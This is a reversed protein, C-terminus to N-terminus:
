PADKPVPLSGAGYDVRVPPEPTTEASWSVTLPTAQGPELRVKRGTRRLESDPLQPERTPPHLGHLFYDIFVVSAKVPAGDRAVLRLDGPTLDVRRLSDNRVEGQLVRADAPAEATFVRPTEVWTLDGSAQDEGGGCGGLALTALALAAGRRM